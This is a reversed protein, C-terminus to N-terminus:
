DFVTDMYHAPDVYAEIITPGDMKFAKALEAQLEAMDTVGVAPVDFYHSRTHRAANSPDELLRM